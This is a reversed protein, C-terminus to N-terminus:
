PTAAPYPPVANPPVAGPGGPPATASSEPAPPVSDRQRGGIAAAVCAIFAGILLALFTFLALTAAAQRATDAAERLEAEAGQIEALVEDVRAEAGAPDLGTRLAIIQSLYARDEAALEGTALSRLLIRTTEARLEARLDPAEEAMAAPDARLLRDVLYELPQGAVGEAQGLLPGEAEAQGTGAQGPVAQGPVAQAAAHIGAGAVAAMMAVSFVTAVAWVLFGHATDRFFVEDTHLGVWRTRLRGAMYGGLGFAIWHTIVVLWIVAAIGLTTASVGEGAWPSVTAFGLGSGLIVLAVSFAAAVVAGALVASWTVGSASDELPPPAEGARHRGTAITQDSM